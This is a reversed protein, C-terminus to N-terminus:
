PQCCYKTSVFWKQNFGKSSENHNLIQFYINLTDFDPKYLYSVENICAAAYLNALLKGEPHEYKNNKNTEFEEIKETNRFIFGFQDQLLSWISFVFGTIWNLFKM